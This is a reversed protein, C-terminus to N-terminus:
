RVIFVRGNALLSDFCILRLSIIYISQIKKFIIEYVLSVYQLYMYVVSISFFGVVM